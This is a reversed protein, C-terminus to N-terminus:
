LSRGCVKFGTGAADGVPAMRNRVFGESGMTSQEKQQAMVLLV